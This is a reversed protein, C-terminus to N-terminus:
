PRGGIRAPGAHGMAAAMVTDKTAAERSLEAVIRGRHMVVIRDALMLLEDLESTILLIAIGRAVWARVLDYIDAKAGM